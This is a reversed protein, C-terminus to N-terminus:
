RPVTGFQFHPRTSIVSVHKGSEQSSKKNM